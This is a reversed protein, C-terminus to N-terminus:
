RAAARADCVARGIDPYDIFAADIGADLFLNLEGALNGHEAAVASSRFVPALFRNEARFTYAHVFLGAAHAREVLASRAGGPQLLPDDDVAPAVPFVYGYKAVGIGQAYAAIRALAERSTEAAIADAEGAGLLQVRPAAPFLGAVQKLAPAEFSQLIVDAAMENPVEANLVAAIAAVADLRQGAFYDVQKLEPYLGISRGTARRASVVLRIVEALTPIRFEGNRAAGTPRLDTFRERARLTAIEAATFDDTFWGSVERDGFVRSSRRDAFEPRDAVDTSLDLLSEHRAIPVGDRTLVVDPEIIDAGMEIALQYAELTHEPLHGSAGRHAIIQCDPSAMAPFSLM